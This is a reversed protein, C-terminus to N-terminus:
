RLAAELADVTRTMEQATFVLPPTIIVRNGGTMLLVGHERRIVEDLPPGSRAAAEPSLRVGLMLGSGHVHEVAPLATLRIMETLAQAGRAAANEALRETEIIEINKLALACGVAQGSFSGGGRHGHTVRAIDESLVVAAVAAYGSTLGKALVMVDPVVGYQQCGFMTGTRGFGTVVEDAVFLIDHRRLVDVVRPWYDKPPAFMGAPGFVPEGFMAAIRDAGVDRIAQELEAVCIDSLEGEDGDFAYPDPMRLQLVDDSARAGALQLGGSTHGHFCGRLTMIIQKDPKGRRQQYARVVQAADDDAESGCNSYRVKGGTMGTIEVLKRALDNAPPTSFERRTTFHEIALIQERAVDAMEVRGHGIQTLWAGAHADLYARGASDWVTSGQGRVLVFPEQPPNLEDGHQLCSDARSDVCEAAM